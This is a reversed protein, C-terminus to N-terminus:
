LKVVIGRRYMWEALPWWLVCWLVAYLAASFAMGSMGMVTHRWIWVYLPVDATPSALSWLVTLGLNTAVFFFLPNRGFACFPRFLFGIFPALFFLLGLVAFLLMDGGANMLAYPSTWLPKGVIDYDSWFLGAGILAAGGFALLMGKEWEGSHEKIVHGALLGFLMSAASSLTGYLGEPDFPFGYQQYVHAAGPVVLDVARSVNDVKDFPSAPAYIHYGASSILLLLAAFVFVRSETKAMKALVMGLVYTLALRQLVGFIRVHGPLDRLLASSDFGQRLVIPLVDSVINFLLGIFFLGAARVLLAWLFEPWPDRIRSSWSFVASAGMAFVFGPFAMDAANMGEWPAHTLTPYVAQFDPVADVVIMLVIALGRFVDLVFNRKPANSRYVSFSAM